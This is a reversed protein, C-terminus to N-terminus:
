LTRKLEIANDVTITSLVACYVVELVPPVGLAM